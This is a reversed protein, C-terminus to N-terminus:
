QRACADGADGADDDVTVAVTAPDSTAIGDSATFTIASTACSTGMVYIETMGDALSDGEVLEVDGGADAFVQLGGSPLETLTVELTDGEDVDEVDLSFLDIAELGKLSPEDRRARTLLSTLTECAVMGSPRM